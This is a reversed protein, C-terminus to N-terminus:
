ATYVRTCGIILLCFAWNESYSCCMSGTGTCISVYFEIILLHVFLHFFESIKAKGRYNKRDLTGSQIVMDIAIVILLLCKVFMGCCYLKNTKM